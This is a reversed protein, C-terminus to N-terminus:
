LDLSWHNVTMKIMLKAFENNICDHTNINFLWSTILSLYIIRCHCFVLNWQLSINLVAGHVDVSIGLIFRYKFLTQNTTLWLPRQHHFCPLRLLPPPSHLRHGSRRRRLGGDDDLTLECLKETPVPATTTCSVFNCGCAPRADEGVTFHRRHQVRQVPEGYQEEHVPAREPYYVNQCKNVPSYYFTFLANVLLMIIFWAPFYSYINKNFINRNIFIIM